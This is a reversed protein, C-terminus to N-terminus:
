FFKPLINKETLLLLCYLATCILHRKVKSTVRLQRSIMSLFGFLQHTSRRQKLSRNKRICSGQQALM